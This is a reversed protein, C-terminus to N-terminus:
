PLVETWTTSVPAYVATWPTTPAAYVATWLTTVPNPPLWGETSIWKTVLGVGDIASQFGPYKAELGDTFRTFASFRALWPAAM